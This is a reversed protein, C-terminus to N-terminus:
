RQNIRGMKRILFFSVRHNNPCPAHYVSGPRKQATCQQTVSSCTGRLIEQTCADGDVEAPPADAVDDVPVALGVGACLLGLLSLSIISAKM